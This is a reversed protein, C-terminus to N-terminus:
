SLSNEKEYTLFHKVVIWVFQMNMVTYRHWLRRPECLLRYLWEMGSSRMWIPAQPKTGAIFDFAAGVGMLVNACLNKVNTQMWLEQKPTSLGVFLIQPDAKNIYTQIKTVEDQSLAQSPPAYSGVIHLRPFLWLLKKILKILTSETTGYLFIKYRRKQSLECMALMADPGYIRKTDKYGMLKGLWVLPMGDPVVLDASNLASKAKSNNLSEVVGHAGLFCVYAHVGKKVWSDVTSVLSGPGGSFIRIDAFRFM